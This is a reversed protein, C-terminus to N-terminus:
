NEPYDSVLAPITNGKINKFRADGGLIKDLTNEINSETIEGEHILFRKRKGPNLM